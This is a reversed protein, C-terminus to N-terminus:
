SVDSNYTMHLDIIMHIYACTSMAGPSYGGGGYDNDEGRDDNNDDDDDDFFKGCSGGENEQSCFFVSVSYVYTCGLLCSCACQMDGM